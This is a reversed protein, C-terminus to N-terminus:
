AAAAPKEGLDCWICTNRNECNIVKCVQCTWPDEGPHLTCMLQVTWGKPPYAAKEKPTNLEIVM